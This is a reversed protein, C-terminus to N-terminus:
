KGLKVVDPPTKQHESAVREITAFVSDILVQYAKDLETRRGTEGVIAEARVIFDRLLSVCPLIGCKNGRPVKMENVTTVRTLQPAFSHFFFCFCEIFFM